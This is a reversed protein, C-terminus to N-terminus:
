SLRWNPMIEWGHRLGIRGAAEEPSGLPARYQGYLTPSSGVQSQLGLIWRPEDAGILDSVEYGVTLATSEAIAQRYTAELPAELESKGSESRNWYLGSEVDFRGREGVAYGLRSSAGIKLTREDSGPLLSTGKSRAEIRHSLN